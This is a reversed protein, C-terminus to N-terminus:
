DGAVFARWTGDAAIVVRYGVYAGFQQFGAFDEEDYLPELARRDRQPVDAWDDYTFASPWSYQPAGQVQRTGYPRQLLEALYRMPPDRDDQLEARRWFGAADGGGGFSYTFGEEPVLEELADFDCRLAAVYIERRTAQVPEPLGRQAEPEAPLDRASCAVPQQKIRRLSGMMADLVQANEAYTGANAAESTTAVLTRSGLDVLWQTIRTGQPLLGPGAARLEQRVAPQGDVEHPDSSLVEATSRELREVEDLPQAVVDLRIPIETPRQVEDPSSPEPSFWRCSEGRPASSASWGAPHEVAYGDARSQCTLTAGSAAARTQTADPSPSSRQAADDAGTCAALMCTAALLAIPCRV